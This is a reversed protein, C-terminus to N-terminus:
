FSIILFLAVPAPPLVRCATRQVKRKGQGHRGLKPGASQADGLGRRGRGVAEEWAKQLHGAAAERSITRAVKRDWELGNGWAAWDSRAEQRGFSAPNGRSLDGGSRGLAASAKGLCSPERATGGQREPGRGLGLCM